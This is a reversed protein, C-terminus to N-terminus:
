RYRWQVRATRRSPGFSAAALSLLTGAAAAFGAGTATLLIVLAKFGAAMDPLYNPYTMGQQYYFWVVQMGLGYMILVGTWVAGLGASTRLGFDLDRAVIAGILSAILALFAGEIVRAKIFAQIQSESNFASFSYTYGHWWRYVAAFGIFFLVTALLGGWLRPPKAMLIMLLLPLLAMAAAGVLRDARRAALVGAQARSRETEEERLFDAAQQRAGAADEAELKSRAEAVLPPESDVSGLGTLLSSVKARAGAALVMRQAQWMADGALWSGLHLGLTHRPVETGLLAAITPAIDIQKVLPWEGDASGSQGASPNVVALGALVLPVQTVVIEGGGHGGTDTHGHDATVIVTTAGLDLLPLLQGIYGDVTKVTAGYEESAGGFEHGAEDTSSFYVVTLGAPAGDQLHRLAMDRVEIDHEPGAKGPAPIMKTDIHEGYLQTWGDWGVFATAVGARKAAAFMSDIRIPGEYWNTTVGHVYPPAGTGLAAGGPLSLSPQETLAVLNVGDARLVNLSDMQRSADVRLGDVVFLVVSNALAPVTGATAPLSVTFPSDYGVVRDWVKYLLAQAGYGGVTLLAVVLVISMGIRLPGPRARLYTQPTSRGYRLNM